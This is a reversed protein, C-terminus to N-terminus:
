SPPATTPHIAPDVPRRGTRARRAHRQGEKRGPETPDDMDDLHQELADLSTTWMARYPALWRDIEQLPECRVHYLRRQADIRAEVLGADRLVRLHKSVAPQSISLARVLDGVPRERDRLLDLIRRRNGEALVEFTALM